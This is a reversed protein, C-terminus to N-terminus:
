PRGGGPLGSGMGPMGMGPRPAMPNAGQGPVSFSGPTQGPMAAYPNLTNEFPKPVYVGGLNLPQQLRVRTQTEFVLDADDTELVLTVRVRAPLWLDLPGHTQEQQMTSALASGLAANGTAATVGAAAQAKHMEEEKANDIEVKWDSQWSEKDMDWYAFTLKKVGWALIQKRGGKYPQDDILPKERRILVSQGTKSDKELKYEIVAEDSERAERVMRRHGITSFILANQKGIFVTKTTKRENQHKSLYAMAIESEMRSLAVRATHYYEQSQRTDRIAGMLSATSTGVIVGLMGLLGVAVLIEILTFGRVDQSCRTSKM